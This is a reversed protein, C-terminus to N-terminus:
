FIWEWSKGEKKYTLLRQEDLPEITFDDIKGLM